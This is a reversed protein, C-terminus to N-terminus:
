HTHTHTQDDSQQSGREKPPPEKLFVSSFGQAKVRPPHPCSVGGHLSLASVIVSGLLTACYLAILIRQSEARQHGPAAM